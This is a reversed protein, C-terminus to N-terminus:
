IYLKCISKVVLLQWDLFIKLKECVICQMINNKNWINATGIVVFIFISVFYLM